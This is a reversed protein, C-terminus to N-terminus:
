QKLEAITRNLQHLTMAQLTKILKKYSLKKRTFPPVVVIEQRGSLM